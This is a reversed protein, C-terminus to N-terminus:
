IEKDIDKDWRVVLLLVCYGALDMLTDDITEDVKAGGHNNLLTKLRAIKDGMRVLLAFETGVSPKLFPLSLASNGYDHNKALLIETLKATTAKIKDTTSVSTM